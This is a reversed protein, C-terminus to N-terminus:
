RKPDLLIWRLLKDMNSQNQRVDRRRFTEVGDSLNLNVWKEPSVYFRMETNNPVFEENNNMSFHGIETPEYKIEGVGATRSTAISLTHWNGGEAMKRNLFM